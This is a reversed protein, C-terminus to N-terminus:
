MSSPIYSLGIPRVVYFKMNGCLELYLAYQLIRPLSVTNYEPLHIGINRVSM